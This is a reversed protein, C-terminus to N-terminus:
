QKAMLRAICDGSFSLQNVEVFKAFGKMLEKSDIACLFYRLTEASPITKLGVFRNLLEKKLEGFGIMGAISDYGSIVSSFILLILAELSYIKNTNNRPDTIETVCCDIIM